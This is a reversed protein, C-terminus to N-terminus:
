EKSYVREEVGIDENRGCAISRNALGDDDTNARILRLSVSDTEM